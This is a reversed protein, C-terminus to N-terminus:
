GPAKKRAIQEQLWTQAPELERFFHMAIGSGEYIRQWQATAVSIAELGTTVFAVAAMGRKARELASRRMTGEVEPGIIPPSDFSVLVGFVTPMREIMEGMDRAYRQAAEFNFESASRVRIVDGEQVIEYHGIMGFM